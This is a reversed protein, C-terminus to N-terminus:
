NKSIVKGRDLESMDPTPLSKARSKVVLDVDEISVVYDRGPLM